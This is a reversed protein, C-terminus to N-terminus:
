TCHYTMSSRKKAVEIEYMGETLPNLQWFQPENVKKPAEQDDAYIIDQHNDKNTITKGYGSNGLLKMTDAIIAQDPDADGDRRAQSVSEGFAKFCDRPWYQIVQYIKTVILGHGLYWQPLPTALLIKQGFYSGILSQRPQTLLKNAEAYQRMPEGIDEQSIKINKFIPTMEAFYPKLPDPGQIDCEVMEFLSGEKVAAIVQEETMTCKYDLPRRFKRVFQRLEPQQKKKQQWECEWLEVLNYGCQRIYASNKRTEARLQGMTKGNKENKTM